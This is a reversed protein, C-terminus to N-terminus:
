PHELAAAIQEARQALKGIRKGMDADGRGARPARGATSRLGDMEIKLDHLEDAMLLAALLLLRSEGSNGSVAKISEIRSDVEAAMAVLHEEQGDECGVTYAYGNVRVTVQAL